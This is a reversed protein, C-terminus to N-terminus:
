GKKICGCLATRVANSCGEDLTFRERDWNCSVGLQRIQESIVTLCKEKWEWCKEIFAERGIEKRKIGQKSLEREVVNETAIGAHDTGPVYLAQKQKMREYRIMLDELSLTIAHGTHLVGTVNPPPITLCFRPAEPNPDHFEWYKEPKFYGQSLWWEYMKKEIQAADYAQPLNDVAM